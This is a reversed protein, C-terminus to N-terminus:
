EQQMVSKEYSISIISGRLFSGYMFFVYLNLTIHRHLYRAFVKLTHEKQLALSRIECGRIFFINDPEKFLKITNKDINRFNDENYDKSRCIYV